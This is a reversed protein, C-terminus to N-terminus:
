RLLAEKLIAKLKDSLNATWAESEELKVILEAPDGLDKNIVHPYKFDFNFDSKPKRIIRAKFVKERVQSQVNWDAKEINPTIFKLCSESETLVRKNMHPIAQM